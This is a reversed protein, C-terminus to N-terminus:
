LNGITFSQGESLIQLHSGNVEGIEVLRYYAPRDFRALLNNDLSVAPILDAGGPSNDGAELLLPYNKGLLYQRDVNTTVVVGQTDTMPHVVDFDTVLLPLDEVLLRWKEVPTVLYYEGDDERRLISAFLKVLAHRTIPAGEHWWEGNRRIVIDIDGSLPPQWLHLPPLGPQEALQSQLNELLDSM